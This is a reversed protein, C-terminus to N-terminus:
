DIKLGFEVLDNFFCGGKEKYTIGSGGFGVWRGRWADGVPIWHRDAEKVEYGLASQMEVKLDMLFPVFREKSLEETKLMDNYAMKDKNTYIWYHLGRIFYTWYYTSDLAIATNYDNMAADHKKIVDMSYGRAAYLRADNPKMDIARDFYKFNEPDLNSANNALSLYALFYKKDPRLAIAKEFDEKAENPMFRYLLLNCVGRYYYADACNSDLGIANSFCYIADNLYNDKLLELGAKVDQEKKITIQAYATLFIIFLIITIIKKM